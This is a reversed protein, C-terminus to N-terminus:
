ESRDYITTKDMNLEINLENFQDNNNHKIYVNEVWVKSEYKDIEKIVM